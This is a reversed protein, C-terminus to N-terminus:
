RTQLPEFDVVGYHRQVRPFFHFRITIWINQKIFKQLLHENSLGGSRSATLHLGAILAVRIHGLSAFFHM